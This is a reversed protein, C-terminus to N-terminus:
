KIKYSVSIGAGSDNNFSTELGDHDELYDLFDKMGQVNMNTNHATYCGDKQLKPYLDRLYNTYWSKDADVFVFDIPGELEKVLQHADALKTDVYDLLGAEKLNERAMQYRDENIEITTVQGGTKSAAWALYITSKGTSTGIELINQYNNEVILDHLFEGDATPVNWYNWENEKSKLFTKVKKDLQSDNGLSATKALDIYFGNLNSSSHFSSNLVFLMTTIISIILIRM